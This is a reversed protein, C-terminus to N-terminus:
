DAFVIARSGDIITRDQVHYRIGKALASRECDRGLRVMDQASHTHQVRAVEQEIIPGADLDGTVYHCTAGILKVGREFAKRYPNAGIFAPLFSHHINIMRGQWQECMWTPVIQMFRALVVLEVQQEQLLADIQRFGGEKDGTMEVHHFPLGEREAIERCDERNGIVSTIEVPMEGLRTRWLIENLCHDTKTVLVATRMKYPLRRFHWKGGLAKGMVAFGTMFDEVSLSMGSTEIELRAFFREGERATFQSFEVLNGGYEAVYGAIRAVLGPQDPCDIKLILGEQSM